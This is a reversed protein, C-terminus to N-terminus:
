VLWEYQQEETKWICLTDREFVESVDAYSLVINVNKLSVPLLAACPM